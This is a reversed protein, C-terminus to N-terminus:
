YVMDELAMLIKQMDAAYFGACSISGCEVIKYGEDTECIDMVFAPALQFIKVMEKCFELAGDDIMDNYRLFCGMRYLSGTIVEGNVIWFRFEKTLNKVSCVQIETDTTLTTAYGNMLQRDRFERWDKIDYFVQGTFVKTDECPRVFLSGYQWEFDDGFKYIRSDSNLLNDGYYKSYVRYDHNETIMAGPKWGYQKSLRAMKLSGFIFVDKRDTKFEFNEVFPLVHVVEYPLEMRELGRILNDYNEERFLNEQVIYYM